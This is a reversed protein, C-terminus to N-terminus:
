LIWDEQKDLLFKLDVLPNRDVLKQFGTIANFEGAIVLNLHLVSAIQSFTVEWTAEKLTSEYLLIVKRKSLLCCNEYELSNASGWICRVCELGCREVM